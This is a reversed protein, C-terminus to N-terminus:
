LFEREAVHVRGLSRGVKRLVWCARSRGREGGKGGVRGRSVNESDEMYREIARAFRLFTM